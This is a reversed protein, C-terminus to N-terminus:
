APVQTTTTILGSNQLTGSWTAFEDGSPASLSLDSLIAKGYWDTPSTQGTSIKWYQSTGSITNIKDFLYAYNTLGDEDLVYECEFSVESSTSGAVREITGPNCKTQSEIVNTTINLDNSTLCGLPEYADTGNWISLILVDGKIKVSM